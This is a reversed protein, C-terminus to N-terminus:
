FRVVGGEREYPIKIYLMELEDDLFFGMKSEALEEFSTFYTLEIRNYVVRQIDLRSHIFRLLYSAWSPNIRGIRRSLKLVYGKKTSSLRLEINCHMQNQHRTSDGDDDYLDAESVSDGNPFFTVVISKDLGPTSTEYSPVIAGERYFMPLPTNEREYTLTCPGQFVEFTQADAWAGPPLHIRRSLGKENLFPSVLVHKGVLFQDQIEKAPEWDPFFYLTPYLIPLGQTHAQWALQYLYPLWAERLGFTYELTELLQESGLLEDLSYNKALKLRILPVFASMLIQHSILHQDFGPKLEIDACTLPCGSINLSLIRSLYLPLDSWSLDAHLLRLVAYRQIGAFGSSTFILPRLEPNSRLFAQHIGQALGNPMYSLLHTAEIEHILKEVSEGDEAIIEQICRVSSTEITKRSWPPCSDSIEIGRLDRKALPDIKEAIYDQAVDFFPDLYINHESGEHPVGSGLEREIFAGNKCLLEYEEQPLGKKQFRQEMEILFHPIQDSRRFSKLLKLPREDWFGTSDKNPQNTIVSSTLLFEERITNYEALFSEGDLSSEMGKMVEFTWRPPFASNGILMSVGRSIEDFDTGVIIYYDLNNNETELIMNGKATGRLDFSCRQPNDLFFGVAHDKGKYFCIPYSIQPNKHNKLQESSAKSMEFHYNLGSRDMDGPMDGLGLISAGPPVKKHVSIRSGKYTTSCKPNDQCLLHGEHDYIRINFPRFVLSIILRPTTIDLKEAHRKIQIPVSKWEKEEISLLPKYPWDKELTYQVRIINPTVVSLRGIGRTFNLDFIHRERYFNELNGIPLIKTQSAPM